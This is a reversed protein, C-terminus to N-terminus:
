LPAKEIIEVVDPRQIRIDVAENQSATAEMLKCVEEISYGTEDALSQLELGIARKLQPLMPKIVQERIVVEDAFGLKKLLALAKERTVKNKELTEARLNPMAELGYAQCYLEYGEGMRYEIGLFGTIAAIVQTEGNLQALIEASNEQVKKQAKDFGLVSTENALDDVVDAAVREVKGNSTSKYVFQKVGVSIILVAIIAYAVRLAAKSPGKSQEQTM